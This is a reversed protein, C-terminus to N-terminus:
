WPRWPKCLCEFCTVPGVIVYVPSPTRGMGCAIFGRDNALHWLGDKGQVYGYRHEGAELAASEFDFVDPM